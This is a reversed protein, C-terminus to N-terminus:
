NRLVSILISFQSEAKLNNMFHKKDQKKMRKAEQKKEKNVTVSLNTFKSKLELQMSYASPVNRSKRFDIWM